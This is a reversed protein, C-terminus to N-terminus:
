RLAYKLKTVYNFQSPEIAASQVGRSFLHENGAGDKKNKRFCTLKSISETIPILCCNSFGSVCLSAQGGAAAQHNCLRCVGELHGVLIGLCMPQPTQKQTARASGKGLGIM